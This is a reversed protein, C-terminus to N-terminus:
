GKTRRPPPHAKRRGTMQKGLYSPLSTATRTLAVLSHAKSSKQGAAGSCFSHYKVPAYVCQDASAGQRLSIWLLRSAEDGVLSNMTTLVVPFYHGAGGYDAVRRPLSKRATLDPDSKFLARGPLALIISQTQRGSQAQVWSYRHHRNRRDYTSPTSTRSTLGPRPTSRTHPRM